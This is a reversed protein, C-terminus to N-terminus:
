RKTSAGAASAYVSVLRDILIEWDYHQEVRRRGGEGLSRRLDADRALRLMADALAAVYSDSSEVPLRIGSADDVLDAPGGWNAVIVPLATAMAELVSTGGPERLSPSVFVDAARLRAAAETATLWGTFTVRDVVGRERALEELSAREPGDGIIEVRVDADPGIRALAEILLDAAKYQVLRGLFVFSIPGASFHYERPRWTSLMVGNEPSVIVDGTVGRPLRQASRDNAVLVAAARLKGPMVRNAATAGRDRLARTLRFGISDRGAFATPMAVNSILPGVVLPAGLRVLPSPISPSIGIPQHVVDISEEAVIRRIVPLMALQREVQTVAWAITRPGDPLREGLTFVPGMGRLSPVFRMRQPAEPFLDTLEARNSEHTVLFPDMDRERLRRYIQLPILGEGNVLDSAYHAALLVRPV